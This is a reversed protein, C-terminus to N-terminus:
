KDLPRVIIPDKSYTVKAMPLVEGSDDILTNGKQSQNYADTYKQKVEKMFNNAEVYDPIHEFHYTRRGSRKEIRFGHATFAKEGYRDAEDLALDFTELLAQKVLQEAEKLRAYAELPNLEGEQVDENMNEIITKIM